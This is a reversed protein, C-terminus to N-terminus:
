FICFESKINRTTKCVKIDIVKPEKVVPYFRRIKNSDQLGSTRPTKATSAPQTRPSEPVRTALSHIITASALESVFLIQALANTM